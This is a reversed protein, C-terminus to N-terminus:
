LSRVSEDGHYEIKAKIYAVYAEQASLFLGLNKIKGNIRIQARFKKTLKHFSVGAFGTSNNKNKNRFRCNDKHTLLQLNDILNNDPNNDKHDVDMGDPIKGNFHEYVIRHWDFMKENIRVLYYGDRKANLPTLYNRYGWQRKKNTWPKGTEIEYYLGDAIKIFGEFKM